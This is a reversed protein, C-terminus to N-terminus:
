RPYRAHMVDWSLVVLAELVELDVDALKNVYLCTGRPSTAPSRLSGTVSAPPSLSKSRPALRSCTARGM